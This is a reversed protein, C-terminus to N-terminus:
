FQKLTEFRRKVQGVFEIFEPLHILDPRWALGMAALDYEEVLRAGEVYQGDKQEHGMLWLTDAISAAETVDHTVVIITNLVDLNAVKTILECARRKMILDLGSFPEDMILLHDSCMLQQCIAVRQRTGGSLAKPYMGGYTSLGFKDMLDNAKDKSHAAILGAQKGAILMNDMVTAWPFLIYNQAVMGVLGKHTPIAEPGVTVKGATPAQLGAIVRSLQSKGIGSPGLFGVVQGQTCDPRVINKIETRVDRLILRGGLTLSVGDVKLLTELKQYAAIATSM